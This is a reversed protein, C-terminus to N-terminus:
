YISNDLLPPGGYVVSNLSSVNVNLDLVNVSLMRVNVSDNGSVM